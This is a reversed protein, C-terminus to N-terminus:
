WPSYNGRRAAGVHLAAAPLGPVRLAADVVSGRARETRRRSEAEVARSRPSYPGRWRGASQQLRTRDARRAGCARPRASRESPNHFHRM